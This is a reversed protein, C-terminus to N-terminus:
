YVDGGNNPSYVSTGECLTGSNIKGGYHAFTGFALDARKGVLVQETRNVGDPGCDQADRLLYIDDGLSLLAGGVIDKFIAYAPVRGSDGFKKLEKLFDQNVGFAPPSGTTMAAMLALQMPSLSGTTQTPTSGAAGYYVPPISDVSSTTGVALSTYQASSTDAM